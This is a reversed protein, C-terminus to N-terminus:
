HLDRWRDIAPLSREVEFVFDAHGPTDFINFKHNGNQNQHEFSVVASQITVGREREQVLYDTSTTGSDVSGRIVKAGANFLMAETTTTKGADIHAIVAVNRVLSGKLRRLTLGTKVYRLFHM